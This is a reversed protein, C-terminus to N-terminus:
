FPTSFEKRSDNVLNEDLDLIGRRKTICFRDKLNSLGLDEFAVKLNGEMGKSVLDWQKSNNKGILDGEALNEYCIGEAEDQNSEAGVQSFDESVLSVGGRNKKSCAGASKKSERNKVNKRKKMCSGAGLELLKKFKVSKPCTVFNKSVIGAGTFSKRVAAVGGTPPGPTEAEGSEKSLDAGKLAEAEAQPLDSIGIVGKASQDVSRVAEDFCGIPSKGASNPVFSGGSDGAGSVEESGDIGGVVAVTKRVLVPEVERLVTSFTEISDVSEEEVDVFEESWLGDSSISDSSASINSINSHNGSSKLSLFSELQVALITVRNDISVEVLEPFVVGVKVLVQLRAMEMSSRNATAEDVCVLTGWEKALSQFFESNWAVVPVGWIRIWVTRFHDFSDEKWVSVDSFWDQWWEKGEKIFDGLAGEEREELLCKTAGLPIAKIAFFGSREIRQEIGRGSGPIRLTGVLSKSLRDRDEAKSSFALLTKTNAAKGVGASEEAVVAAFSRYDRTPHVFGRSFGQRLHGQGGQNHLHDEENRWKGRPLVGASNRSFRPVNAHIKVGDFMVNDVKVALLRADSVEAFRAFGFRKGAKNRRPSIAVEVIEGICGFVQFLDKAECRVPFHSVFISELKAGQKAKGKTFVDWTPVWSRFHKKRVNHWKGELSSDNGAM